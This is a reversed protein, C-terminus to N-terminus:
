RPFGGCLYCMLCLSYKSATSAVCGAPSRLDTEDLVGDSNADCGSTLVDRASWLPYERAICPWELASAIEAGDISGDGNTDFLSRLCVLHADHGCEMAAAVATFFVLGWM